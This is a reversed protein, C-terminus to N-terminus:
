SGGIGDRREKGRHPHEGEWGSGDERVPMGRCQPMLCRLGLLREEWQHGVIGDEVVCSALAM